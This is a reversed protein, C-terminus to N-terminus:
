DGECSPSKRDVLRDGVYCRNGDRDIVGGVM